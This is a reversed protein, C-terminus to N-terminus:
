LLARARYVLEQVRERCHDRLEVLSEDGPVIADGVVLAARLEPLASLRKLHAGFSEDGFSAADNAYAIGMPIIEAGARRAANFAGPHFFRVEDGSFSTGEPFVTVGRGERLARTMAKLVTAGSRMSTRDVFLTGTRHAGQGILPWQALDARSVLHSETMAFTIMIDMGSRHNMVFIRGVGGPGRRPYSNGLSVHLGDTILKVGYIKLVTRAWRNAWKHLLPYFQSSHSLLTELDLCAWVGLTTSLSATARAGIRLLQSPSDSV